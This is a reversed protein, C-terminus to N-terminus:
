KVFESPKGVDPDRAVDKKFQKKTEHSVGKQGSTAHPPVGFHRIHHADQKTMPAALDTARASAIMMIMIALAMAFLNAM